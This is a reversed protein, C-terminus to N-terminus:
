LARKVVAHWCKKEILVKPVNCSKAVVYYLSQMCLCQILLGM